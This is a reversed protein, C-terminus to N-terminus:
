TSNGVLEPESIADADRTKQACDAVQDARAKAATSGRQQRAARTNYHVSGKHMIKVDLHKTKFPTWWKSPFDCIWSNTM